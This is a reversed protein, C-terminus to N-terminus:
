LTGGGVGFRRGAATRDQVAGIDPHLPLPLDDIARIGAVWTGTAKVTSSGSAASTDTGVTAVANWTALTTYDTGIYDWKAGTVSSADWNNGDFSAANDADVLTFYANTADDMVVDNFKILCGSSHNAGDSTVRVLSSSRAVGGNVTNYYAASNTDYKFLIGNISPDTITNGAFVMSVSHKLVVGYQPRVITNSMAKCSTAGGMLFAHDCDTVTNNYAEGTVSNNGAGDAGFFIGYGAQTGGPGTVSNSVVRSVCAIAADDPVRIGYYLSIAADAALTVSCGTANAVALNELNIGRMNHSGQAATQRLSVTTGTVSASCGAASPLITIGSMTGSVNGSMTITGGSINVTAADDPTLVMGYASAVALGTSSSSWNGTVTLARTKNTSGIGADTWNLLKTGSLTVADVAAGSDLTIAYDQTAQADLAIAGVTIGTAAAAIHMVRTAGSAAKVTVGHESYPTITLNADAPAIYSTESYTGDNIYITDGAGAVALGRTITLVCDSVPDTGSNADDGVAFGNTASNSVYLIAM